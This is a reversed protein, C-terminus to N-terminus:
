TAKKIRKRTRRIEIELRVMDNRTDALVPIIHTVISKFTGQSQRLASPVLIGFWRLPDQSQKSEGETSSSEVKEYKPSDPPDLQDSAPPQSVTQESDNVTSPIGQVFIKPTAGSISFRLSASMREDYFDQGYRMRNPSTFNAQALSFYGSSLEKHLAQQLSQYQHLKNLYNELLKDLSLILSEKADSIRPVGAVPQHNVDSM